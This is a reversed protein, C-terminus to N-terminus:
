SLGQASLQGQRGQVGGTSKGAGGLMGVRGGGSERVLLLDLWTRGHKLDGLM